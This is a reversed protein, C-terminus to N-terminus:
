KEPLRALLEMSADDIRQELAKCVAHRLCGLHDGSMRLRRLPDVNRYLIRPESTGVCLLAGRILFGCLVERPGELQKPVFM